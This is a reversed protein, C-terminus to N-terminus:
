AFHLIKTNVQHYIRNCCTTLSNLQALLTLCFKKQTKNPFFWTRIEDLVGIIRVSFIRPIEWDMWSLMILIVVKYSAASDSTQIGTHAIANLDNTSGPLRRTMPSRLYQRLCLPRSTFKVEWIQRPGLKLIFANMGGRRSYAKIAYLSYFKGKGNIKLFNQTLVEFLGVVESKM